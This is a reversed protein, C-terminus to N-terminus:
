LNTARSQRAKRVAVAALVQLADILPVPLDEQTLVLSVETCGIIIAEAGRNILAKAVELIDDRPKGQTYGAKIGQGVYIANMVTEQADEDPTIVEMKTIAKHYIGAKITGTTALLGIKKIDPFNQYIYAATESIMNIIPVNTSEQLERYYHHATNCPIAIIEAGARELTHLTEQLQKLPSEGKGSIAQVRSPIKPNNDIIIRFHDQDKLAPTARIIKLFLAATAEPGMGGLIGIVKEQHKVIKSKLM